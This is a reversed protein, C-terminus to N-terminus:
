ATREASGGRLLAAVVACLAVCVVALGWLVTHFASDYSQALFHGFAETDM